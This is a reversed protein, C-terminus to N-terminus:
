LFDLKRKSPEKNMSLFHVEMQVSSQLGTSVVEM